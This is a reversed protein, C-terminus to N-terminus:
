AHCVPLCIDLLVHFFNEDRESPLLNFAHIFALYM